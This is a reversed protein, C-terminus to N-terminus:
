IKDFFIKSKQFGAKELADLQLHLEQEQNSVRAYGILKLM